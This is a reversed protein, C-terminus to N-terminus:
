VAMGQSAFAEGKPGVGNKNGGLWGGGHLYLLIPVKRADQPVLVDMELQDVRVSPNYVYPVNYIELLPVGNVVAERRELPDPTFVESSMSKRRQHWALASVTALLLLLLVLRVSRQDDAPKTRPEEM